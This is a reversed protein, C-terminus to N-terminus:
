RGSDIGRRNPLRFGFQSGVSLRRAWIQGSQRTIIRYSLALGIGNGDPKSTFSETFPDRTIGRGRDEVTFIGAEDASRTSVTITRVDRESEAMEDIANFCLNLVVQGTLVRECWVSVETPSIDTNVTVASAEARLRVFYLCENVIVNLDIQEQSHELHGVFRRMSAIVASARDVQKQAGQLGRTVSGAAIDDAVHGNSVSALAAAIFNRAATLPQGLEHAVAMALDGMVNYRAQYNQQEVDRTRQQERRIRDSIDYVTLLLEEDPRGAVRELTGGLFSPGRQLGIRVPIEFQVTAIPDMAAVAASWGSADDDSRVSVFEEIRHDIFANRRIGFQELARDTAHLITGDHALVLLGAATHRSLTEVYTATLSVEDPEADLPGRNDVQVLWRAQGDVVVDVVTAEVSPGDEDDSAVTASSGAPGSTPAVHRHVRANSYESASENAWAVRGSSPEALLVVAPSAGFLADVQSSNLRIISDM